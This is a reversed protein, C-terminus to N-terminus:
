ETVIFISFFFVTFVYKLMERVVSYKFNRNTIAIHMIHNWPTYTSTQSHFHISVTSYIEKVLPDTVLDLGEHFDYGGTSSSFTKNYYGQNAM